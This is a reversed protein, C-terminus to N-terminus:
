RLRRWSSSAGTPPGSRGQNVISGAPSASQQFRYDGSLFRDNTINLTSGMFGATEIVGSPGIFIGQPNTVFVRGNASLRGYITTPDGGTVRNLVVSRSGPQAFTVTEGRGINFSGWNLIAKDTTQSIRMVSPAPRSVTAQGSVVTGDGPLGLAIAPVLIATLVTAFASKQFFTKRNMMFLSQFLPRKEGPGNLYFITLSTPFMLM